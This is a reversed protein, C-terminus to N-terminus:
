TAGRGHGLSSHQRRRTTERRSHARTKSSRAQSERRCLKAPLSEVRGSRGLSRPLQRLKGPRVEFRLGGSLALPSNCEWGTATTNFLKYTGQIPPSLKLRRCAAQAAIQDRVETRIEVIHSMCFHRESLPISASPYIRCGNLRGLSDALSKRARRRIALCRGM